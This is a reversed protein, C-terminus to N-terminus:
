SADMVMELYGARGCGHRDAPRGEHEATCDCVVLVPVVREETAKGPQAAPASNVNVVLTQSPHACTPCDGSLRFGTDVTDSSWTQAVTDVWGAPTEERYPVTMDLLALAGFGIDVPSDAYYIGNM